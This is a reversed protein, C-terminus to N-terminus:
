CDYLVNPPPSLPLNPEWIRAPTYSPRGFHASTPLPLVTPQIHSHSQSVCEDPRSSPESAVAHASSERGQIRTQRGRTSQSTCSAERRPPAIIDTSELALSPKGPLGVDGLVEVTRSGSRVGSLIGPCQILQRLSNVKQRDLAVFM